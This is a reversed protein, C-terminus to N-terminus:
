STKEGFMRRRHALSVQLVQAGGASEGHAHHETAKSAQKVGDEREGEAASAAVADLAQVLLHHEM